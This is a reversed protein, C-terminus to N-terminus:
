RADTYPVAASQRRLRECLVHLVGRVIEINGAMLEAFGERDLRFLRTDTVAAVSAVRPEPDLLALEGFIDHEGLLTITRAGDYVKVQGHVIVYLSDGPDGKNIIVEGARAEREELIAAVDALIEEAAEAFMPVAKLCIVKEITLMTMGGPLQGHGSTRVAARAACATTWSAPDSGAGAALRRLWDESSAEAHPFDDALRAARDAPDLDDVLPLVLARLAAPLTVDLVELAYAHKERTGHALADRVRELAAPDGGIGLLSLVRRRAGDIEGELADRLLAVDPARGLDRLAATAWAADRVEARVREEIVSESETPATWGGAASSLM